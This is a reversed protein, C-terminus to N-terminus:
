MTPSPCVQCSLASPGHEHGHWALVRAAVEPGHVTVVADVSDRWEALEGDDIGVPSSVPNQLAM